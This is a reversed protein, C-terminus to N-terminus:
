VLGDWSWRPAYPTEYDQEIGLWLWQSQDDKSGFDGVRKDQPITVATIHGALPYSPQYSVHVEAEGGMDRKADELHGILEDITM